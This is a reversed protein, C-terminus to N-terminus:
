GRSFFSSGMATSLKQLGMRSFLIAFFSFIPWANASNLYRSFFWSYPIGYNPFLEINFINQPCAASFWLIKKVHFNKDCM